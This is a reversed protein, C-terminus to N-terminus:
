LLIKKQRDVKWSFSYFGIALARPCQTHSLITLLFTCRYDFKHQCECLYVLKSFYCFVGTWVVSCHRRWNSCDYYFEYDIFLRQLNVTHKSLVFLAFLSASDLVLKIDTQWRDSINNYNLNANTYEIVKNAKNICVCILIIM